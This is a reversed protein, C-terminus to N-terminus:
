VYQIDAGLSNLKCVFDEYGREIYRVGTIDTVGKAAMGGIVVAAGARLDKAQVSAGCLPTVGNIVAKKGEVKINAGMKNLEFIYKFRDAWIGETVVSTGKAQTLLTSIQPQLDTPFGPYAMTKINARTLNRGEGRRSTVRIWDGNCTVEVGIETLKAILSEMHIPIVNWVCVDGGTAASAIMFTGAEIQDPIITYTAKGPLKEVGYVRIRDTGAGRINAGMANLFNAVDVVHPEKAANEIFTTGRAKVAAMMLNLTAGVSVIDLYISNGELKDASAKVIGYSSSVTAGLAEFGKIHQDIPRFGFDCGGPPYVEVCGLKGLLAGLLYYSARLDKVMDCTAIHSRIESADIFLVNDDEVEVKAGLESILKKLIEVDSIRPVNEIRCWGDVLLAAPIVAVAANKAGSISVDGNLPTNGNIIIRDSKILGNV